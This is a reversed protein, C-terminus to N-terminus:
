KNYYGYGKKNNKLYFDKRYLDDCEFCGLHGILQRKNNYKKRSYINWIGFKIKFLSRGINFRFSIDECYKLILKWLDSYFITPLYGSSLVYVIIDDLTSINNINIESENNTREIYELIKNDEIDKYRTKVLKKPM